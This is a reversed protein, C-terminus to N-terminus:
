NGLVDLLAQKRRTSVPISVESRLIIAGGDAKDFRIMHNLNVLYRQHSRFFHYVSLMQEYEKIGKSVVIKRGGVLFFTTYSNDSECYMIDQIDILFISVQTRLIIKKNVNNQNVQDLLNEVQIEVNRREY